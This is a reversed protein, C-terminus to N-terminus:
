IEDDLLDDHDPDWDVLAGGIGPVGSIQKLRFSKSSRSMAAIDTIRYPIDRNSGDILTIIGQEKLYNLLAHRLRIHRRNTNYLANKVVQVAAQNDCYLSLSNVQLKSLLIDLILNMIWDAEEGALALAFLEAEMSSLAICTQRKSKWTIAAGRLTFIYGSTSKSNGAESCWSADSHGKMTPPYGTYCLAHDKTGSLYRLLRDLAEWHEKGPNSTFRSLMSVSFAIDPRTCSTAYMLSGIIKSYKVQNISTEENSSLKVNHDFPTEAPRCNDYGWTSLLQEIYHAQSLTVRGKDVSVKMGLLTDVPGLDKMDFAKALTSKIDRVAALNSGLILMDDVYLCIIVTQDSLSRHYLCKDSLSSQFGLSKVVQDFKMHWMKPAQKLGYISKDLKCVKDKQDKQVYGEPQAMYIEEDLEGNLFAIKVDMQHVIFNEIYALALLIRAISGDSHLKKKLVWKCKLVKAGKSLDVLHWTNNYLLSDMEDDIAEFNKPISERTSARLPVSEVELPQPAISSPGAEPEVLIVTDYSMNAMNAVNQPAEEKKKPAKCDAAWHGWKGCNHCKGRKKKFSPKKPLLQSTAESKPTPPKRKLEDLAIKEKLRHMETKFTLWEPPLKSLILWVFLNESIDSKDDALKLRLSELEIIQSTISSNLNFKSTFLREGLLTRSLGEEKQFHANLRDWIEKATKHSSYTLALRPNLSNLHYDRCFDEDKRWQLENVDEETTAFDSLVTYFIEREKMGLQVHLKWAHFESLDFSQLKVIDYSTVKPMDSFHLDSNKFSSKIKWQYIEFIQVIHIIAVLFFILIQAPSSSKEEVLLNGLDPSLRLLLILQPCLLFEALSLVGKAIQAAIPDLFFWLAAPSLGVDLDPHSGLDALPLSGRDRNSFFFCRKRGRSGCVAKLFAEIVIPLPRVASDPVVTFVCFM